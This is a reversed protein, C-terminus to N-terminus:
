NGFSYDARYLARPVKTVGKGAISQHQSRRCKVTVERLGWSLAARAGWARQAALVTHRHELWPECCEFHWGLWSGGSRCLGFLPVNCHLFTGKRVLRKWCIVKFLYIFLDGRESGFPLLQKLENIKETIANAGRGAEPVLM